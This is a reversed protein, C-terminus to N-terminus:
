VLARELGNDVINKDKVSMEELIRIDSNRM